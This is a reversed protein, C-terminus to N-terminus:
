LRARENNKVKPQLPFEADLIHKHLLDALEKKDVKYTYGGVYEHNTLYDIRSSVAKYKQSIDTKANIFAEFVPLLKTAIENDIVAILKKEEEKRRHNEILYGYAHKMENIVNVEYQVKPMVKDIFDIVNKSHKAKRELNLSAEYHKKAGEDDAKLTDFLAVSDLAEIDKELNPILAKHEEQFHKIKQELDVAEKFRALLEDAVEDKLTENSKRFFIGLADRAYKEDRPRTAFVDVRKSSLVFARREPVYHCFDYDKRFYDHIAIAQPHTFQIFSKFWNPDDINALNELDMMIRQQGRSLLYGMM